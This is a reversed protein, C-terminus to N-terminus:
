LQTAFTYFIHAFMGLDSTIYTAEIWVGIWAEIWVGIWVEICYQGRNM